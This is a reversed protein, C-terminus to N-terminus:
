VHFRRYLPTHGDYTTATAAEIGLGYFASDYPADDGIGTTAPHDPSLREMWGSVWFEGEDGEHDDASQASHMSYRGDRAFEAVKPSHARCSIVVLGTRFSPSVPHVRPSGDLRLTAHYAVRDELRERGFAALAPEAREFEAWAIM